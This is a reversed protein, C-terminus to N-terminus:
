LHSGTTAEPCVDLERLIPGKARREFVRGPFVMVLIENVVQVTAQFLHGGVVQHDRGALAVHIHAHPKGDVTAINGSLSVLERPEEITRQEYRDGHFYGIRSARLMGVGSVVFGAHVSEEAAVRYLTGFLDEGHDIRIALKDGDRLKQTM